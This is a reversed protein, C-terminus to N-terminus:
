TEQEAQRTRGDRVKSVLNPLFSLALLGATVGAAVFLAQRRKGSLGTWLAEGVYSYAFSGVLTGAATAGLVPLFALGAVGAAYDVYAFPAMPVLRLRLLNLFGGHQRVRDLLWSQDQLAREIVPRGVGRALWYAATTGCMASVWSLLAGHVTGFIAGGILTLPTCPLGVTTAGACLLVFVVSTEPTSALREIAKTLSGGKEIHFYGLRWAVIAAIALLAPLLALRALARLLHHRREEPSPM